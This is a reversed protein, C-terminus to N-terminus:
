SGWMNNEEKADNKHYINYTKAKFTKALARKSFLGHRMHSGQNFLPHIFFYFLIFTLVANWLYRLVTVQM